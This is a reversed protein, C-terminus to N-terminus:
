RDDGIAALVAARDVYVDLDDWAPVPLGRVAGAIRAREDDVGYGDHITRQLEETLRDVEAKQDSSMRSLYLLDATLRDVEALLVDADAFFDWGDPPDDIRARIADLDTM